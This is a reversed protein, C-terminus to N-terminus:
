GLLVKGEFALSGQVPRVLVEGPIRMYVLDVLRLVVHYDEDRMRAVDLYDLADMAWRPRVYISGLTDSFLQVNEHLNRLPGFSQATM